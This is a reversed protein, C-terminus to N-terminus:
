SVEMKEWYRIFEILGSHLISSLMKYSTSLLSMGHYNSCDAKDDNKYISVIISEKWQDLLEEENWISNDFKPIEVM